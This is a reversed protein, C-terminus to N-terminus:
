VFNLSNKLIFDELNDVKFNTNQKLDEYVIGLTEEEIGLITTVNLQTKKFNLKLIKALHKM